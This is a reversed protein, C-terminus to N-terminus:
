TPWGLRAVQSLMSKERREEKADCETIRDIYVGRWLRLMIIRHRKIKNNNKKRKELAFNTIIVRLQFFNSSLM